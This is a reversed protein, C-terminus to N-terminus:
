SSSRATPQRYRIEDSADWMCAEGLRKLIGRHGLEDLEPTCRTPASRPRRPSSTSTAPQPQAGAAAPQVMLKLVTGDCASKRSSPQQPRGSTAPDRLACCRRSRM